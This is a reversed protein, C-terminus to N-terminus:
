RIGGGINIFMRLEKHTKLRKQALRRRRAYMHKGYYRVYKNHKRKGIGMRAVPLQDDDKYKYLTEPCFHVHKCLKNELSCVSDWISWTLMNWQIVTYDRRYICHRCRSMINYHHSGMCGRKVIPPLPMAGEKNQRLLTPLGM